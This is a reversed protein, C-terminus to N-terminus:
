VAGRKSRKYAALLRRGKAALALMSGSSKPVNEGWARASLARRTPQGNPKVAGGSPNSFMRVLFSGKRRLKEPTNAPGKVGPKLKSGTARNYAIRGLQSLGGMPNKHAARLSFAKKLAGMNIDGTTEHM